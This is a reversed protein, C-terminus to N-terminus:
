PHVPLQNQQTLPIPRPTPLPVLLIDRSPISVPLLDLPLTPLMPMADPLAPIADASFTKEPRPSALWRAVIERALADRMPSGEVPSNIVSGNKDLMPKPLIQEDVLLKAEEMRATPVGLLVTILCADPKAKECAYTVLNFGARNTFGTKYGITALADEGGLYAPKGPTNLSSTAPRIKGRYTVDGKELYEKAQEPFERYINTILKAMDSATTTARENTGDRTPVLPMGNANVFRTDNMGLKKAAANMQKVFDHHHARPTAGNGLSEAIAATALNDSRTLAAALADEFPIREGVKFFWPNTKQRSPSKPDYDLTSKDITVTAPLTSQQWAVYATMLKTLSAPDHLENEGQAYLVTGDKQMVLARMNSFNRGLLKDKLGSLQERRDHFWQEIVNM